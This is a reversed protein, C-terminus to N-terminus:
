EKVGGLMVGKAFYKQLFPYIVLIPLTAIVTTAYKITESVGVVDGSGVGGLMDNTQSSVLIERLLLQLPHLSRDQLYIMADFWSNWHYVAYFLTMVAVVPMSLPLVISWLIRYESAGEMKASEILGDPITSQFFTRMVILNYASIAGPLLLAWRTDFLGLDRVNLYMPILGGSFFMTFVIFLMVGNRGYLDRRSLPYAGLTTLVLNILTGALVYFITNRYTLWVRSDNFVREYAELNFGKPWLSVAGSAISAADSVSSVIVFWLPYLFLFSGVVLLVINFADFLREGISKNYTM